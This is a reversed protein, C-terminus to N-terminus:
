AIVNPAGGIPQPKPIPLIAQLAPDYYFQDAVVEDACEVWFLPFAVDFYFDSVQAVRFGFENTESPSILANKM